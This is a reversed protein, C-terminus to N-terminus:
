NVGGPQSPKPFEFRPLELTADGERLLLSAQDKMWEMMFSGASADRFQMINGGLPLRELPGGSAAKELSVVEAIRRLDSVFDLVIVKDKGMSMRLGRGLQQVFIRRSHTARLFIILDVDPVDVGENFLDVSTMVDIQGMRFSSMIKDRDRAKMDGSISEAKLGYTRLVSALQEAHAITPCFAIGSSRGENQFAEKIHRAIEADRTPLLLKRNLQTLSYGHASCDQVFEWDINDALLRYEVECLFKERLGDSIGVSVLPPGLLSEIEFGDGRWPTATVGGLMKPRLKDIAHRFTTSGIHHAEDVLILGFDPLLDMKAVASQVTAFTIGEWYSPQEGGGLQHTPVDKPLQSWFGVQLQSILEKKDALVLVRNHEILGAQLMDAVTDAMLVTKGLGTALVALARGTEILANRFKESAHDQYPRLTRRRATYKPVKAVLELLTASDMVEVELGINSYKQIENKLSESKPRSCAVVMRSAGYFAGADVVEKVATKPPPTKTTHKCQIVWLEGNKVGLIDAGKDGAGGVIRVDDFSAHMMLRAVDRELAQWPGSLLRAESLFVGM